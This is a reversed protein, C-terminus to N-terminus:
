RTGGFSELKLDYAIVPCHKRMTLAPQMSGFPDVSLNKVALPCLTNASVLNLTKFFKIVPLEWTFKM